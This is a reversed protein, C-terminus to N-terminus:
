RLANLFTQVQLLSAVFFTVGLVLLTTFLLIAL